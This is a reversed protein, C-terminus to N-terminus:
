RLPLLLRVLHLTVMKEEALTAYSSPFNNEVVNKQM